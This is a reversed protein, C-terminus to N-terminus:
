ALLGEKQVGEHGGRCDIAIKREFKGLGEGKESVHRDEWPLNATCM